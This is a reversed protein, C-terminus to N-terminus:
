EEEDEDVLSGEYGCKLCIVDFGGDSELDAGCVPCEIGEFDILSSM